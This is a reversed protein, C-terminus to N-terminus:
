RTYLVCHLADHVTPVWYMLGSTNALVDPVVCSSDLAKNHMMAQLVAVNYLNILSCSFNASMKFCEVSLEHTGTRAM